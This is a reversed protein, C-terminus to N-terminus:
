LLKRAKVQEMTKNFVNDATFGFHGKADKSPASAGFSEMGILLDGYKGCGYTSSAEVYVKFQGDPYVTRQYSEPQKEFLEWCPASVVRCKVGAARLRKAAEVVLAVETGSGGLTVKAGDDASLVYAGKAVKEISSGELNPTGSRSLALVTPTKRSGM